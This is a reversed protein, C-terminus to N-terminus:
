ERNLEAAPFSVTVKFLDGDAEIVFNGKQIEVLNKAISLGLGSGETKRSLDGRMFRETLEEAKMELLNESINKISLSNKKERGEEAAEMEVYIRTGPLSYKCVNILLNEMVRWLQSSDAEIYMPNEPLKFILKLKREELKDEFEGVSQKVLEVFNIVEMQLSINGSSIKSAEVLDEILQKLRQSKNDLIDIYGLIRNESIDERKLLDIYTIISTLPTKIDHSVNTILDTKLKEDKMSTEVAKRIGAGLSNAARALRLNQGQLKSTDIQYNSDGEVIRELGEIISQQQCKQQYWYIGILIDIILAGLIGGVGLLVLILNIMLFILYPIWVRSVIGSNQYTNLAMKKVSKSGMYLLTTKFFIKAKWRRILSFYWRIAIENVLFAISGILVPMLGYLINGKQYEIWCMYAALGLGAECFVALITWIEIPFYDSGPVVSKVSDSQIERGESISLVLLSIGCWLLSLMGTITLIRVYPAFEELENKVAQLSDAAEYDRDVWFWIKVADQFSKEKGKLMERMQKATIETNTSIQVKDPDYFVFKGGEQRIMATIDDTNKDTLQLGSNTYHLLGEKVPFRFYYNINTNGRGYRDKLGVYATYDEFLGEASAILYEKLLEYEEIGSAIETLEKGDVTKYKSVLVEMAYRNKGTEETKIRDRNEELTGEYEKLSSEEEFVTGNNQLFSSLEEWSGTLTHYTFGYNGWAILDDLYFKASIHNETIGERKGAYEAIDIEQRGNYDERIELEQSVAILDIIQEMNGALLSHFIEEEEFNREGKFPSVMTYHYTVGYPTSVKFFSNILILAMCVAFVVVSLRQTFLLLERIMGSFSKKKREKKEKM